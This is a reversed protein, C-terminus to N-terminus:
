DQVKKLLADVVKKNINYDLRTIPVEDSNKSKNNNIQYIDIVLWAVVTMFIGIAILLFEKNNM